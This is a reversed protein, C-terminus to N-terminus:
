NGVSAQARKLRDEAEALCPGQHVPIIGHLDGIDDAPVMILTVGPEKDPDCPKDCVRCRPKDRRLQDQLESLKGKTSWPGRKFDSM